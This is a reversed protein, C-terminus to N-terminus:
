SQYSKKLDNHSLTKQKVKDDSSIFFLLTMCWYYGALYGGRQFTFIIFFIGLYFNRYCLYLIFLIFGILGFLGFDSLVYAINNYIIPTQGVGNGIFLNNVYEWSGVLRSTGSTDKGDLLSYFRSIITTDIIDQFIFYISIALLFSVVVKSNLMYKLKYKNYHNVFKLLILMPITSFSFTLICCVTILLDTKLAIKYNFNNFYAISLVATLIMGFHQPENTLGRMRIISNLGKYMYSSSDQRNFKWLFEYPLKNTYIAIYIYIAIFCFIVACKVLTEITKYELQYYKIYNYTNLSFLIYVIIKLIYIYSNGFTFSLFSVNLHILFNLFVLFIVSLSIIFQNLSIKTVYRLTYITGLVIFIDSFSGVGSEVGGIIFDNFFFAGMLFMIPIMSGKQNKLFLGGFFCLLKFLM